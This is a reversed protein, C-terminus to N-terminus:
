STLPISTLGLATTIREAYSQIVPILKREKGDNESGSLFPVGLTALVGTQPSGVICSVDLGTRRTSAALLYGERRIQEQQVLLEAREKKTMASYTADASLFSEQASPALFAALVRGSVTRLPPVRDGVEVSLRVPEPSEAQAIVVLMSRSLVCLHCSEHIKEALERMPIMAAKLLQDVPSHTHALEYLRLTLHYGDSVPDRAIYARRELADLMRFLESPTRSLRRALETLSQPVHASALAELVDLGKELAPVSYRTEKRLRM